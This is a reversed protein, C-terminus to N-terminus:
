HYIYLFFWLVLKQITVTVKFRCVVYCSHIVSNKYWLLRSVKKFLVTSPSIQPEWLSSYIFPQITCHLVMIRTLIYCFPWEMAGTTPQWITVVSAWTLGHPIQPLYLPVPIFRGGGLNKPNGRDIDNWWPGGYEHIMQTIFLLGMPPSLESAYEWRCPYVASCELLCDDEELSYFYLTYKDAPGLNQHCTM